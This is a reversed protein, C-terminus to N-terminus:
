QAANGRGCVDRRMQAPGYEEGMGFKGAPPQADRAPAPVAEGDLGVPTQDELKGFAPFGARRQPALRPQEGGDARM